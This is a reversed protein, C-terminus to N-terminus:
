LRDKERKRKLKKKSKKEKRHAVREFIRQNPIKLYNGGKWLASVSM